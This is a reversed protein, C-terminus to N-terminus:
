PQEGTLRHSDWVLYPAPTTGQPKVSSEYTYTMGQRTSERAKELNWEQEAAPEIMNRSAESSVTKSIGLLTPSSPQLAMAIWFPMVTILEGKWKQENPKRVRKHFIM